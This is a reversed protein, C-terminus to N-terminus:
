TERREAFERVTTAYTVVNAGSPVKEFLHALEIAGGVHDLRDRRKLEEGVLVLDVDCGRAHLEAITAFIVGHGLVFFDSPNLIKAAEGIAERDQLMSGLVAEEADRNHLESSM